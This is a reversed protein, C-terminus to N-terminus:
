TPCQVWVAHWCGLPVDKISVSVEGCGKGMHMLVGGGGRAAGRAGSVQWALEPMNNNFLHHELSGYDLLEYVLACREPCSGILLVIHPHHLRSLIAVESQFEKPGQQGGTAVPDLLKVAVPLGDLVGRYVPGYGGPPQVAPDCLCVHALVDHDRISHFEKIELLTLGRQIISSM